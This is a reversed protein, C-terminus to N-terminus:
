FEVGVSPSSQGRSALLAATVAGTVAVGVLTWFWWRKYFPREVTAPASPSLPLKRELLPPRAKPRLTARLAQPRGPRVVVKAVFDEHGSHRVLVENTGVKLGETVTIPTVGVPQGNVLVVAGEVNSDVVLQPVEGLVTATADEVAAAFAETGESAAVEREATRATAGTAVEFLSLRLLFGTATRGIEGHVIEDVELQQGIKTLCARDLRACGLALLMARLRLAPPPALRYRPIRQAARRVAGTAMRGLSEPLDRAELDLAVLKRAAKQAVASGCLAELVLSVAMSAPLIRSLHSM